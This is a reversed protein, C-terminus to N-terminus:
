ALVALLRLIQLNFGHKLKKEANALLSYTKKLDKTMLPHYKMMKASLYISALQANRANPDDWKDEAWKKIDMYEHGNKRKYVNNIPVEGEGEKIYDSPAWGGLM